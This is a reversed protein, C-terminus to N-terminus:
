PIKKFISLNKKLIKKNLYINGSITLYQLNKPINIIELIYKKTNRIFLYELSIPLFFLDIKYTHIKSIYKLTYNSNKFDLFMEENLFCDKIIMSKIDIGKSKFCEKDFICNFFIIKSFNENDNFSENNIYFKKITLEKLNKLYKKTNKLQTDIISRNYKQMITLKQLNKINNNEFFNFVNRDVNLIELETVNNINKLNKMIFDLNKYLMMFCNYNISEACDSILKTKDINKLDIEGEFCIIKNFINFDNFCYYGLLYIKKISDPLNILFLSFNNHIVNNYYFECLILKISVVNKNINKIDNQCISCNEFTIEKISEPISLLINDEICFHKLLLTKINKPYNWKKKFQCFRNFNFNNKNLNNKLETKNDIIITFEEIFSPFNTIDLIDPRGLISIAKTCTPILKLIKKIWETHNRELTKYCIVIEFIKIKFREDKKEKESKIYDELFIDYIKWICAQNILYYFNKNVLRLKKKCNENLYKFIDYIWIDKPIKEIIFKNKNFIKCFLNLIVKEMIVKTNM